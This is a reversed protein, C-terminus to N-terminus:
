NIDFGFADKKKTENQVNTNNFRLGDAIEKMTEFAVANAPTSVVSMATVEISKVLMYDFSGDQKYKYEYDTAWGEKSFGQLIGNTLLNKVQEYRVYTKPIYAVFYLGTSNSEIYIVRGALSDVDYGHQITVPMNLKNKLYYKDIFADLCEKSYREGNENTKGFKTEYGKLILGDLKENDKDNKTITSASISQVEEWSGILVNDFINIKRKEM